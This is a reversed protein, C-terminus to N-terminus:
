EYPSLGRKREISPDASQRLPNPQNNRSLVPTAADDSDIVWIGGCRDTRTAFRAIL